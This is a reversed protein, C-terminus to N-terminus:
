IAEWTGDCIAMVTECEVSDFGAFIAYREEIGMQDALWQRRRRSTLKPWRANLAHAAAKQDPTLKIEPEPEAPRALAVKAKEYHQIHGCACRDWYSFYFPQGQRPEWGPPHNYRRMTSTCTPCKKGPGTDIASARRSM